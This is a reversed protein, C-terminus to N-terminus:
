VTIKVRACDYGKFRSVNPKQTVILGFIFKVCEASSIHANAYTGKVTWM